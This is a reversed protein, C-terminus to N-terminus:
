QSHGFPVLKMVYYMRFIIFSPYNKFTLGYIHFYAHFFNHSLVYHKTSENRLDEYLKLLFFIIQGFTESGNTLVCQFPSLRIIVLLQSTFAFIYTFSVVISYVINRWSMVFTRMHKKEFFFLELAKLAGFKHALVCSFPSLQIIELFQSTYTLLHTFIIACSYTINGLCM